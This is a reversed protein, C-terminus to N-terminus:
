AYHEGCQKPEGCDCQKLEGCSQPCSPCGDAIWKLLVLRQWRKSKLLEVPPPIREEEQMRYITRESINLLQSVQEIRLLEPPFTYM